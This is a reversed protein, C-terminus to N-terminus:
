STRVTGHGVIEAVKSAVPKGVRDVGESTALKHVLQRLAEPGEV